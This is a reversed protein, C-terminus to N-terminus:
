SWTWLVPTWRANDITSLLWKLLLFTNKYQEDHSMKVVHETQWELKAVRQKIDFQKPSLSTVSSLPLLIRYVSSIIWERIAQWFIKRHIKYKRPAAVKDTEYIQYYEEDIMTLLITKSYTQAGIDLRKIEWQDAEDLWLKNGNYTILVPISAAITQLSGSNCADLFSVITSDAGKNWWSVVENVIKEVDIIENKYGLRQLDADLINYSTPDIGTHFISSILTLISSVHDATLNQDAKGAFLQKEDIIEVNPYTRVIDVIHPNHALLYEQPKARSSMTKKAM